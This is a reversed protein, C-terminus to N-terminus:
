NAKNKQTILSEILNIENVIDAKISLYTKFDMSFSMFKYTQIRAGSIEELMGIRILDHILKDLASVSQAWQWRLIDSFDYPPNINVLYDYTAFSSRTNNLLDKFHLFSSRM